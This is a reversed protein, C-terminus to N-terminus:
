GRDFPVSFHFTAGGDRNNEAWIQGKHSEIISKAIGLGLGMGGEKTTFFSEFIASANEAVIGHGHDSIAVEIADCGLMQTRITLQRAAEPTNRMADMANVILNLLVQQLYVRDGAVLPLTLDLQKHLQIRRRAADSTVLMLVEAISENVNLPQMRMQRKQLLGRIRRIAEEARLDDRRIDALIERIEGLPPQASKLLLAAADANSLIASLPQRIEHAVLATLEGLMALRSVHALNRTTEEARRRDTVDVATGIYGVFEGSAAFRPVGKDLIWRFEGDHRRLRYEMEFEQRADFASCYTDVCRQLDDAHVGETWGDGSEEAQTRGTFDLWGQNFFECRKDTGSMWILVPATDAMTRFRRESERLSNEATKGQEFLIAVLYLPAARLILFHQLALAVDSPSQAVFPGQEHLAAAVSFFTIVAVAGTAGLMGFRIAAWFLFPVPAYFRPEAFDLSTSGTDFALSGTVIVGITLLAAEVWRTASPTLARWESGIIWYLIVPTVILHAVANGLFWQEWTLWYDHGLLHRAAAGGFAFIAPVLLVALIGYLAFERITAFRLPNVLVHRLLTATLLGKASDIAFTALLFWLPVDVPTEVLLRIPLPALVFLWWRTPRVVLLACLLVSDPFWFPSATAHSFTMAYRYALYFAVEFFVLALLDSLWSRPALTRSGLIGQGDTKGTSREFTRENPPNM